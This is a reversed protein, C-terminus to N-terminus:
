ERMSLAAEQGAIRAIPWLAGLSVSLLAALWSGALLGTLGVLSPFVLSFRSQKL